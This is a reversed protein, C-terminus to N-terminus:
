NNANATVTNQSLLALQPEPLQTLAAWADATPLKALKMIGQITANYQTIAEQNKGPKWQQLKLEAPFKLALQLSKV